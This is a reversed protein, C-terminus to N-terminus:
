VAAMRATEGAKENTSTISAPQIFRRWCCTISSWPQEGVIAALESYRIDVIARPGIKPRWFSSLIKRYSERTAYELDGISALFQDAVQDFTPRPATGAIGEIFRYEPFEASFSFTGNRISGKIAWLQRRAHKLNAQTPPLDITPRYRKGRFSFDLQIRDGKPIVGGTTSRRSM